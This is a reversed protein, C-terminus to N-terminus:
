VYTASVNNALQASEPLVSIWKLEVLVPVSYAKEKSSNALPYEDVALRRLRLRQMTQIKLQRIYERIEELATLFENSFHKNFLLNVFFLSVYMWSSFLAAIVSLFSALILDANLQQSSQYYNLSNIYVLSLLLPTHTIFFTLNLMVITFSFKYDRYLSRQLSLNSRSKILNYILVTNLVFEILIPLVTRIIQSIIDRITGIISIKCTCIKTTYTVNAGINTTVEVVSFMLNFVNMLSIVLLLGFLLQTLLKRNKTWTYRLPYTISIMRDFSIMINLWPSTHICLRALFSLMKCSYDSLVYLDQHGLSVPLMQLFGAILSLLNFLSMPLNYFGMTENRIKKRMCVAINLLNSIIGIPAITLCAYFTIQNQLRKLMASYAALDTHNNESM